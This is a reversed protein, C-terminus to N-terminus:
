RDSKLRQSPSRHLGTNRPTFPNATQAIASPKEPGLRPSSNRKVFYECINPSRRIAADCSDASNTSLATKTSHHPWSGVGCQIRSRVFCMGNMGGREIRDPWSDNKTSFRSMTLGVIRQPPPATPPSHATPAHRAGIHRLTAQHRVAAPQVGTRAACRTEHQGAILACVQDRVCGCGHSEQELDGM